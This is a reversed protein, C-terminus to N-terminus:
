IETKTNELILLGVMAIIISLLLRSINLNVNTSHSVLDTIQYVFASGYVIIGFRTNRLQKHTM